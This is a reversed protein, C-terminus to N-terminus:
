GELRKIREEQEDVLELVDKVGKAVYTILAYLGFSDGAESQTVEPLEDIMAGLQKRSNPEDTQRNYLYTDMNRFIDLTKENYKEINKKKSRDSTDTIFEKARIPVYNSTSSGGTARVEGGSSPRIYLNQSESSSTNNTIHNAYIGAARLDTYDDTTENRTLRVEMGSLTRIYMHNYPAAPNTNLYNGFFGSARLPQYNYSGILGDNPIDSFKVVRAEGGDMPALYVNYNSTGIASSAVIISDAQFRMNGYADWGYIGDPSLSVARNNTTDRFEADSGNVHFYGDDSYSALNVGIISKGVIREAIVGDHTIALNNDIGGAFSNNTIAIGRSFLAMVNNPDNPDILFQGSYGGYNGYKIETESEKFSKIVAAVNNDLMQYRIPSRGSLIEDIQRQTSELNSKIREGIPLNGFDLDYDTIDGYTDFSTKIKVLRVTDNLVIADDQVRIRDGLQPVAFPYDELIKFDTKITYKISEDVIKKLYKHLTAQQTITQNTYTEAELHGLADYLTPHKYFDYLKASEYFNSDNEDFNAYGQVYTFVESRDINLSMDSSNHPNKIMYQVDRGISDKLKITSPSDVEYTYGYNNLARNFEKISHVGLGFKEWGFAEKFDEIQFQMGTKSSLLSFFAQATRSGTYYGDFTTTQMKHIFYPVAKVSLTPLDGYGKKDIIQIYFDGYKEPYVGSIRWHENIERIFKKNSETPMIDGELTVMGNEEETLQLEAELAFVKGQIDKVVHVINSM